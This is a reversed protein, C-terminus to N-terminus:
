FAREQSAAPQQFVIVARTGNPGDKSYQDVLRESTSGDKAYIVM